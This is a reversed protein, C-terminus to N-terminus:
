STMMFFFICLNKNNWHNQFYFPSVYLFIKTKKRIFVCPYNSNKKKRKWFIYKRKKDEQRYTPFFFKRWLISAHFNNIYLNYTYRTSSHSAYMHIYIIYLGAEWGTPTLIVHSFGFSGLIGSRWHYVYTNTYTHALSGFWDAWLLLKSLVLWKRYVVFGPARRM